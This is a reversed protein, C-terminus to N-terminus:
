VREVSWRVARRITDGEVIRLNLDGTGDESRSVCVVRGVNARLFIGLKVKRAQDNRADAAVELLAERLEITEAREPPARPDDSPKLTQMVASITQESGDFLEYWNALIRKLLLRKPDSARVREMALM